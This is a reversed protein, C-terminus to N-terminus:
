GQPHPLGRELNEFALSWAERLCLSVGLVTVKRGPVGWVQPLPFCPMPLVKRDSPMSSRSVTSLQGERDEPQTGTQQNQVQTEPSVGESNLNKLFLLLDTRKARTQESVLRQLILPLCPFDGWTQSPKRPKVMIDTGGWRRGLRPGEKCLLSCLQTEPSHSPCPGLGWAKTENLVFRPGPSHPSHLSHM